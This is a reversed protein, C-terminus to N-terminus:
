GKSDTNPFGLVKSINWPHSATQHKVTTSVCEVVEIVPGVLNALHGAGLGLLHFFSCANEICEIIFCFLVTEKGMIMSTANKYKEHPLDM